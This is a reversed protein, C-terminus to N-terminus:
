NRPLLNIISLANMKDIGENFTELKQLKETGHNMKVSVYQLAKKAEAYALVPDSYTDASTKKTVGPYVTYFIITACGMLIIVSAAIRFFASKFFLNKRVSPFSIENKLSDAILNEFSIDSSITSKEEHLATFLAQDAKFEESVTESLFYYRLLQEESDSCDGNYYRSLMEKLQKRDM